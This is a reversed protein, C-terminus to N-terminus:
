PFTQSVNIGFIVSTQSASSGVYMDMDTDGDDDMFSPVARMGVDIGHFPNIGNGGIQQEFVSDTPSDGINLFYLIHGNNNGVVADADGDSDLDVLALPHEVSEPEYQSLDILIQVHLETDDHLSFFPRVALM